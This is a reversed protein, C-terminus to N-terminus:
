QLRWMDKSVGLLKSVESFVHSGRFPPANVGGWRQGGDSPSLTHIVAHKKTDVKHMWKKSGTGLFMFVCGPNHENVRNFIDYTLPASDYSYRMTRHDGKRVIWSNYLMLVGNECWPKLDPWVPKRFGLDDQYEAMIERAPLPIKKAGHKVSYPIGDNAGPYIRYPEQAFTVVRVKNPSLLKLPTYLHQPEPEIDERIKYWRILEEHRHGHKWFFPLWRWTNRPKSPKYQM